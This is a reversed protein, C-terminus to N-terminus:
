LTVECPAVAVQSTHPAPGPAARHASHLGHIQSNSKAKTELNIRDIWNLM